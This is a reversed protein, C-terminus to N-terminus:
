ILQEPQGNVKRAYRGPSIGAVKTFSRIFNSYDAFGSQYCAESLSLGESLCSKALAVRRDLIYSRLTLGTHKKFQRSIYTSNLYFAETLQELSIDQHLHAEIYDMTKRVLEPMIDDAHFSTNQFVSNILVMLQSVTANINVDAGFSRSHLLKELTGTYTLFQQMQPEDLHVINGKGKPRYDFCQSLNTAHTSLRNLYSKHLNITIREYESDDLTYSRHMEEPSLVILDGPRLRYCQNEVYFNINGRLFFYIEYANHRHYFTGQNYTTVRHLYLLERGIPDYLFEHDEGM